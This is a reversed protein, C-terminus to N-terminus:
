SREKVTEYDQIIFGITERAEVFEGEEMGEGCYWVAMSRQCRFADYAPCLEHFYDGMLTNNQLMFAQKETEKLLDHKNATVAIRNM